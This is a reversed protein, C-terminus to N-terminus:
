SEPEKTSIVRADLAVVGAPRVLLPNVELELVDPAASALRSLASAAHAAAPVDLAPRGRVGALIPACRLSRLLEAAEDPEVPALAVAVDRFVEAYLGGLGVLLLPGFRPDRRIGVILELGQEAAEMRELACEPGLRRELSGFALALTDPGDICLVVGDSDSKHERALTKLVLPYGLAAAASRAEDLTRVPRAEPLPIGAAAVLARAALYGGELGGAPQPEPLDPIRRVAGVAQAALVGLAHVAREIERYVLVGEARFAAAAASEPYITHVVLPCERAAAARAVGLAVAVERAGLEAVEGGYGGFYGTLLLADVEDSGLLIRAVHEFRALDEEGGAFDIPNTTTATARLV